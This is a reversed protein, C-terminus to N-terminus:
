WFFESIGFHSIDYIKQIQYIQDKNDKSIHSDILLTNAPWTEDM